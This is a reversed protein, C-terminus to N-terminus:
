RVTMKLGSVRGFCSTSCAFFLEYSDDFSFITSRFNRDFQFGLTVSFFFINFIGSSQWNRIIPLFNFGRFIVATTETSLQFKWRITIIQASLVLTISVVILFAHSLRVLLLLPRLTNQYRIFNFVLSFFEGWSSFFGSPPHPHVCLYLPPLGPTSLPSSAGNQIQEPVRKTWSNRFNGVCGEKKEGM